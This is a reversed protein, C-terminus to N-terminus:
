EETRLEAKQQRIRRLNNKRRRVTQRLNSCVRACGGRRRLESVAERLEAIEKLLEQERMLLFNLRREDIM